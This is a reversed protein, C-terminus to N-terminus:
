FTFYSVLLLLVFPAALTLASDEQVDGPKPCLPVTVTIDKSLSSICNGTAPNCTSNNSLVSCTINACLDAATYYVCPVDTQDVYPEIAPALTANCMSCQAALTGSGHIKYYCEWPSTNSCWDAAMAKWNELGCSTNFTGLSDYLGLIHDNESNLLCSSCSDAATCTVYAAPQALGACSHFLNCEANRRRVLGALPHGGANVFLKLQPCVAAYNGANLRKRLTSSQLTGCGLNFAFSVLADFMNQNLPATILKHVCSVYSGLDSRLLNEVQANTLCTGQHYPDGKVILHGYGITPLGIPDRYWCNRKGEFSEILHL